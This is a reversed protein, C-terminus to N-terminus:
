PICVGQVRGSCRRSLGYSRDLVPIELPASAGLGRRLGEWVSGGGAGLAVKLSMLRWETELDWRCGVEGGKLDLM